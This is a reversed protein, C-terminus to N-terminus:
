QHYGQRKRSRGAEVDCRGVFCDWEFHAAAEMRNRGVEQDGPRRIQSCIGRDGNRIHDVLASLQRMERLYEGTPWCLVDARCLAERGHEIRTMSKNIIARLEAATARM